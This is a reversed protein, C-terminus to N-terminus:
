AVLPWATASASAALDSTATTRKSTLLLEPGGKTNAGYEIARLRTVGKTASSKLAFAYTGAKTVVKSVDFTGPCGVGGDALPRPPIRPARM